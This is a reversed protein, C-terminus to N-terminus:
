SLVIAAVAMLGCTSASPRCLLEVILRLMDSARPSELHPLLGATPRIQPQGGAQGCCAGVVQWRARSRLDPRGLEAVAHRLRGANQLWSTLGCFAPRDNLAARLHLLWLAGQRGCGVAVARVSLAFVKLRGRQRWSRILAQPNSDRRACM